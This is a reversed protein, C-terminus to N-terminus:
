NAVLNQYFSLSEQCECASEVVKSLIVQELTNQACAGNVLIQRQKSPIIHPLVRYVLQKAIVHLPHHLDKVLVHDTICNSKVQLRCGIHKPFCSYYQLGSHDFLLKVQGLLCNKILM